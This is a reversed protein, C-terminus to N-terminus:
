LSVCCNLAELAKKKDNRRLVFSIDCNDGYSIMRVPIDKLSDVIRHEFGVNYWKLDGVVCVVVMDDEVTIDAYRSLAAAIEPLHKRNDISLSIETDSTVMLDIPTYSRAFCHFVKDLFRYGPVKYTSRIKLYTIDDKAAVAKIRGTDAAESILTGPAQPDLTNLLRVPINKQRAPLICTPHLIKAGFHAM